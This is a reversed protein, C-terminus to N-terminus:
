SEEEEHDDTDFDIPTVGDDAVCAEAALEICSECGEAEFACVKYADNCNVGDPFLDPDINFSIRRGDISAVTLEVYNAYGCGEDFFVAVTDDAVADLAQSLRGLYVLPDFPDPKLGGELLAQCHLTPTADPALFGLLQDTCCFHGGTHQDPDVVFHILDGASNVGVIEVDFTGKATAFKASAPLPDIDIGLAEAINGNYTVVYGTDRYDTGGIVTGPAPCCSLVEPVGCTNPITVPAAEVVEIPAGQKAARLYSGLGDRRYIVHMIKEGTPQFGFEDEARWKVIGRTYNCQELLPAWNFRPRLFRTSSADVQGPMNPLAGFQRYIFPRSTMFTLVGYPATLWEPNVRLDAGGNQGVYVKSPILEFEGDANYKGRFWDPDDKFAFPLKNVLQFTFLNFGMGGQVWSGPTVDTDNYAFSFVDPETGIMMLMNQGNVNFGTFDSGFFSNLIYKLYQIAVLKPTAFDGDDATSFGKFDNLNPAVRASVRAPDNWLLGVDTEALGYKEGTDWILNRIYNNYFDAPIREVNKLFNALTEMGNEYFLLDKLCFQPTEWATGKMRWTFSQHTDGPVKNAPPEACLTSGECIGGEPTSIHFDYVYPENNIFYIPTNKSIVETGEPKRGYPVERFDFQSPKWSVPAVENRMRIEVQDLARLLMTLPGALQNNTGFNNVLAQSADTIASTVGQCPGCGM